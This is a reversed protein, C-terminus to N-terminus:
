PGCALAEAGDALVAADRHDLSEDLRQLIFARPDQWDNRQGLGREPALEVVVDGPVVGPTRM